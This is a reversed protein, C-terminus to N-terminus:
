KQKEEGEKVHKDPHHIFWKEKKAKNVDDNTAGKKLGLKELANLYMKEKNMKKIEEEDDVILDGVDDIIKSIFFSTVMGAILGVFGGIVTGLGPFIITGIAAGIASASLTVGFGIIGSAVACACRKAL